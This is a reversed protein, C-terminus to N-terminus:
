GALVAAAVADGMDSTGIPTVGTDGVIDYTRVGNELCHLVADEVAKAEDLLGFSYQLMMAASLITALPNAKNLGAMRPASGHSPEYLGCKTEGISASALMGLSGTVAGAEDSLIDGFMNPALIVDFQWPSKVLQMAANDVLMDQYEVDPYDKAVDAVVERWLRCSELVNAKDISHLKKGRLRATEFGIKAIRRVEMESYRKTDYAGDADRGREGFYIGGTLERVILMDIGKEAIDTRLPCAIKLPQWLKAPRINAFCGMARRLALLGTEPRQDGPLNDWQPGGIAGLLVSDSALCVDTTEQPLATGHADIACGGMLVHTYSFTHGFKEGVANLVKIAERTIEPGIGDGEIVAINYKM